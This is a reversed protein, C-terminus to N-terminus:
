EFRWGDGEENALVSEGDCSCLHLYLHKGAIKLYTDNGATIMELLRPDTFEDFNIVDRTIENERMWMLRDCDMLVVYTLYYYDGGFKKSVICYNTDTLIRREVSTEDHDNAFVFGNADGTVNKGTLAHLLHCEWAPDFELPQKPSAAESNKSRESFTEPRLSM